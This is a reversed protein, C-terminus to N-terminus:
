VAPPDSHDRFRYCSTNQLNQFVTMTEKFIAEAGIERNERESIGPVCIKSRQITIKINKFSKFFKKREM